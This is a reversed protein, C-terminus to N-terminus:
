VLKRSTAVLRLTMAVTHRIKSSRINSYRDELTEHSNFKLITKNQLIRLVSIFYLYLTFTLICKFSINKWRSLCLALVLTSSRRSVLFDAM